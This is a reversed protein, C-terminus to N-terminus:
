SIDKYLKEHIHKTLWIEVDKDDEIINIMDEEIGLVIDSLPETISIYIHSEEDFKSLKKIM